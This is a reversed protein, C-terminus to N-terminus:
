QQQQTNEPQNPLVAVFLIKKHISRNEICRGKARLTDVDYNTPLKLVLLPCGGNFLETILEDLFVKSGDRDLLALDRIVDNRYYEDGGWPPDMFIVAGNCKQKYEARFWTIFNANVCEVLGSLGYEAVNHKLCTYRVADLEIAFCREFSNESKVFSIVNGGLGSTGDVIYNKTRPVGGCFRDLLDFIWYRVKRASDHYTVFRLGEDDYWLNDFSFGPRSSTPFLWDFQRQKGSHIKKM